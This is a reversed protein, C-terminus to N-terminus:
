SLEVDLQTSNLQTAASYVPSLAGGCSLARLRSPGCTQGSARRPVWRACFRKINLLSGIFWARGAPYPSSTRIRGLRSQLTVGLSAGSYVRTTLLADSTETTFADCFYRHVVM